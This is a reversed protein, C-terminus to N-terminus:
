LTSAASGLPERLQIVNGDPDLGDCVRHDGYRWEHREANLRGGAESAAARARALSPVLFVMKIAAQTRRDTVGGDLASSARSSEEARLLVLECADGELAAHDAKRERVRLGLVAVYFATLRDIDATYIVAGVIM